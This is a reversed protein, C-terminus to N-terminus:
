LFYLLIQPRMVFSVVTILFSSALSESRTSIVSLTLHLVPMMWQLLLPPIQLRPLSLVLEAAHAEM